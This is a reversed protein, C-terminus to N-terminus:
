NSAQKTELTECTELVNNRMEKFMSLNRINPPAFMVSAYAQKAKVFQLTSIVDLLIIYYCGIAMLLLEAKM